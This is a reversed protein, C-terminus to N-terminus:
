EPFRPLAPGEDPAAPQPRVPVPVIRRPAAQVPPAPPVPVPTLAPALPPPPTEATLPVLGGNRMRPAPQRASGPADPAAPSPPAENGKPSRYGAFHYAWLSSRAQLRVRMSPDQAAAQELAAGVELSVPRLKGLSEAAESRVAPKPDQQLTEILVPIIEPFAAPDYERLEKAAESRKNEDPDTKLTSVLTPVREKPDAKPQRKFFLGASTANCLVAMLVVTVPFLRRKM